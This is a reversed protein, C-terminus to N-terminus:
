RENHLPRIHVLLRQSEPPLADAAPLRTRLSPPSRSPYMKMISSSKRFPLAFNSAGTWVSSEPCSSPNFFSEYHRQNIWPRVIRTSMPPDRHTTFSNLSFSPGLSLHSSAVSELTHCELVCRATSSVVRALVQIEVAFELM